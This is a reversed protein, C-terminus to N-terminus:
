VSIEGSDVVKGSKDLVEIMTTGSFDAPFTVVGTGDNPLEATESVDDGRTARLKVEKHPTLSADWSVQIARRDLSVEVM